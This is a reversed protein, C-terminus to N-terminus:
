VIVIGTCSALLGRRHDTGDDHFTDQLMCLVHWHAVSEVNSYILFLTGHISLLVLPKPNM